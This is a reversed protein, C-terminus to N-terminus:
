DHLRDMLGNMLIDMWGDTHFHAGDTLSDMLVDTQGDTHFQSGAIWVDTM